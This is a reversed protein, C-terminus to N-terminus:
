QSIKSFLGSSIWFRFKLIILAILPRLTLFYFLAILTSIGWKLLEIIRAKLLATQGNISVMRRQSKGAGIAQRKIFDTGCREEPVLHHVLVGPTFWIIEGANQLRYFLEKEESGAMNKGVRGLDTNFPEFSKFLKRRFSMNSGRFYQRRFPKTKKGPNFYGLLSSLFPNFWYPKKDMFHLLIIGGAANVGPHQDFFRVCQESFDPNLLADDDMFTLIEGKAEKIGRNRAYSLGQNKELIYRTKIQPYDGAFKKSIDPTSDESNNDIILVEFLETDLTQGTISKLALPLLLERNYTCM